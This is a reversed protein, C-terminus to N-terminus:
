KVSMYCSLSVRVAQFLTILEFMLEYGVELRCGHLSVHEKQQSVQKFNDAVMFCFIINSLMLFIEFMYFAFYGRVLCKNIMEGLLNHIKCLSLLFIISSLIMIFVNCFRVLVSGTAVAIICHVLIITYFFIKIIM